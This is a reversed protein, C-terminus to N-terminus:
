SCESSGMRRGSQEASIFFSGPGGDGQLHCELCGSGGGRCRGGRGCEPGPPTPAAGAPPQTRGVHPHRGSHEWAGHEMSWAGIGWARDKGRGLMGVREAAPGVGPKDQPGTYMHIHTSHAASLEGGAERWVAGGCAERPQKGPLYEVRARGVDVPPPAPTSRRMSLRWKMAVHKLACTSHRSYEKMSLGRRGADMRPGPFSLMSTHVGPPALAVPQLVPRLVAGTFTPLSHLYHLATPPYHPNGGRHHTPAAAAATRAAPTAGTSTPPAHERSLVAM